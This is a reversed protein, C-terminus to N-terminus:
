KNRIVEMSVTIDIDKGTVGMEYYKGTGVHYELRDISFRTEFGAVIQDAEFPNPKTGFYVFPVSIIKTVDKITLRGEVLYENDKVHQVRSSVFRMSPYRGADFFDKSRLHNDRKRIGTNVSKVIVEIECRSEALHDPDFQLTGSYDEFRGRVTAYIHKV